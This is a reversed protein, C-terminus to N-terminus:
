EKKEEGKDEKKEDGSESSGEEGEGPKDAKAAEDKSIDYKGPNKIKDDLDKRKKMIDEEAQKFAERIENDTFGDQKLKNKVAGVDSDLDKMLKMFKDEKELSVEADMEEQVRTFLENIEGRSYGESQLKKSIEDDDKGLGKMIKVIEAVHVFNKTDVKREMPHKNKDDPDVGSAGASPTSLAAPLKSKISDPLANILVSKQTSAVYGVAGLIGFILVLTFFLGVFSFSRRAEHDVMVSVYENRDYGFVRIINDWVLTENEEIYHTIRIDVTDFPPISVQPQNIIMYPDEMEFESNVMIEIGVNNRITFYMEDDPGSLNISSPYVSFPVTEFQMTSLTFPFTMNMGESICEFRGEYSEQKNEVSSLLFDTEVSRERDISFRQRTTISPDDWKLSCDLTVGETKSIDFTISGRGNYVSIERSRLSFEIEPVQQILVPFKGIEYGENLVSIYGFASQAPNEKLSLRIDKFFDSALSGITDIEIYDSIGPTMLFELSNFDFSSPNYLEVDMQNKTMKVIGDRSLIFPKASRSFALFGIADRKVTDWGDVPRNQSIWINSDKIFEVLSGNNLESLAISAMATSLLNEDFTASSNGWSGDNNQNFLLWRLARKETQSLEGDSEDGKGFRNYLFWSTDFYPDSTDFFYGIDDRKLMDNLSNIALTTRISDLPARSAFNTTTVDCNGWPQIHNWCAGPIRYSVNGTTSNFMVEDRTNKILIPLHNPTCIIDFIEHHIPTFNIQYTVDFVVQITLDLEDAYQILCSSHDTPITGDTWDVGTIYATWKEDTTDEPNPDLLDFLNQQLSLWVTADHVIRLWDVRGTLNAQDLMALVEATVRINCEDEPWCKNEENRNEKLWRLGSEIHTAYTNTQHEGFSFESLAWIVWATSVPDGWGGDATQTDLLIYPISEVDTIVIEEEWRLIEDRQQYEALVVLEPCIASEIHYSSIYCGNEWLYTDLQIVEAPNDKCYVSNFVRSAREICSYFTLHEGTVYEPRFDVTEKESVEPRVFYIGDPPRSRVEADDEAFTYPLFLVVLFLIGVLLFGLKKVM